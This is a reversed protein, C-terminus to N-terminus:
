TSELPALAARVPSADFGVLALPLAVLHYLGDPVHTLILGELVALDHRAIANHSELAKSTMPDVSPTDIGVLVVDHAALHDVLEPSLSCFDENWHNPDPFSGTCFLVRPARLTTDGLHHPRVREGQPVDVHIVQCPGYYLDLSRTAIGRGTSVYHSPADAHAGVHVTSRLASLELHHGQDWSMAVDRGFAVDGPWVAIDPTLPPSIDILSM